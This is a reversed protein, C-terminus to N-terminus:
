SGPKFGSPAGWVWGDGAAPGFAQDAVRTKLDRYSRARTQGPANKQPRAGLGMRCLVSGALRGSALEVRDRQAIVM